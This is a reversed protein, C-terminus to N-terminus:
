EPPDVGLIRSRDVPDLNSLVESDMVHSTVGPALTVSILVAPDANIRLRPPSARQEAFQAISSLPVYEGARTQVFFEDVAGGTGGRAVRLRISPSRSVHVGRDSQVRIAQMVDSHSLGLARAADGNLDILLESSGAQDHVRAQEVFPHSELETASATAADLAAERSPGTVLYRRYVSPPGGAPMIGPTRAAWDIVTRLTSGNADFLSVIAGTELEDLLDSALPDPSQSVSRVVFDINADFQARLASELGDLPQEAAPGTLMVSQPPSALLELRAGPPFDSNSLATEISSRDEPHPLGVRGVITPVGDRQARCDAEAPGISIEAVMDLTAQGVPVRRVAEVDSATRLAAVLESISVGVERLRSPAIVVEIEDPLVDGCVVPEYGLRVLPARVSTEFLARRSQPAADFTLAFWLDHGPAPNSLLPSAGEPLSVTDLAERVAARASEPAQLMCRGSRALSVVPWSPDQEALAEVLPSCVDLDVREPDIELVHIDVRVLPERAEGPSPASFLTFSLAAAATIGGLAVASPLLWSRKRPKADVM